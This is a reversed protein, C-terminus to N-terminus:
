VRMALSENGVLNIRLVKKGRKYNTIEALGRLQTVQVQLEIPM